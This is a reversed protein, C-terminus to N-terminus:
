RGQLRGRCWGVRLILNAEYLRGDVNTTAAMFFIDLLPVEM